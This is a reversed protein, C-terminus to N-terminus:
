IRKMDEIIRELLSTVAREVVIVEVTRIGSHQTVAVEVVAHRIPTKEDSGQGPAPATFQAQGAWVAFLFVVRAPGRFRAAILHLLVSLWHIHM